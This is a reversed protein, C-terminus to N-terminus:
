GRSMETEAVALRDARASRMARVLPVLQVTLVILLATAVLAAPESSGSPQWWTMGLAALLWLPLAALQPRGLRGAHGTGFCACRIDHSRRLGYLGAAAFLSGLVATAAAPIVPEVPVLVLVAVLLEASCIAAWGVRTASVGLERLVSRFAAPSRLKAAASVILVGAVAIRAAAGLIDVEAM